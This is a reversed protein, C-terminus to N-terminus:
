KKLRMELYKNTFGLKEYLLKAPNNPEVHLAIDGDAHEIAKLMLSKGIGQGRYGSHMAIYVLINEPIFGKMGTRNVIVAGVIKGSDRATVIFGGPTVGSNLAYDICKAIDAKEDGYEDLHVELFSAIEDREIM